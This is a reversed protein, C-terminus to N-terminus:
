FLVFVWRAMMLAIVLLIFWTSFAFAKKGLTESGTIGWITLYFFRGGDFLGVPLMNILAVSFSIIVTWWLLDFIFDAFDGLPSTYYIGPDKVEGLLIKLFSLIGSTQSPPSTGIGLFSKGDRDALNLTYELQDENYITKITIEEGPSYTALTETLLQQSTIEKDNIHTIAGKLKSTFAPSNEYV